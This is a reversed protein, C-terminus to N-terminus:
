IGLKRARVVLTSPVHRFAERWLPSPEPRPEPELLVDVAFNARQLATFLGSVTFRQETLTVDGFQRSVPRRDFWSRRVQLGGAHDLLQAVPHPLSLVFPADTRLVRHVQRLVRNPDEAYQLAQTCLVLDVSATTVFALEALDALHHEVKVAAQEAHRRARALQDECADVAIVKAGGGALVVANRGSGCGLDIVRRGRVDGLLRLEDEAALDTGYRVVQTPTEVHEAYWAAARDWDGSTVPV